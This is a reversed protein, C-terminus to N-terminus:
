ELKLGRKAAVVKVTLAAAGWLKESAQVLDGAKLLKMGDALYKDSLKRPLIISAM